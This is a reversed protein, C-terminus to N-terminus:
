QMRDIPTAKGRKDVVIKKIGLEEEKDLRVIRQEPIKEHVLAYKKPRPKGNSNKGQSHEKLIFHHDRFFFLM